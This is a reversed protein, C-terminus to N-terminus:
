RARDSRAGDIQGNRLPVQQSGPGRQGFEGADQGSRFEIAVDIDFVPLFEDPVEARQDFHNGDQLSGFPPMNRSTATLPWAPAIMVPSASKSASTGNM